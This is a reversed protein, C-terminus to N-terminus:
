NREDLNADIFAVTVGAVLAAVTLWVVEARNECFVAVVDGTKVGSARWCDAVRVARHLLQQGTSSEM